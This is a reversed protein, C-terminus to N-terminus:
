TGPVAWISASSKGKLINALTGTPDLNLVMQGYSTGQMGMAWQGAYKIYAPGAGEEKSLREKGITAMHASLWKEMETLLEESFLGTPVLIANLYANASNIFPLIEPETLATDMIAIVEAETVRNAM